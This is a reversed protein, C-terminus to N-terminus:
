IALCGLPVALQPHPHLGNKSMLLVPENQRISHSAIQKIDLHERHHDGCEDRQSPL